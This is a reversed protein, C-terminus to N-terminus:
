QRPCGAGACSSAVASNTGQAVAVAKNQGKANAVANPVGRVVQVDVPPIAPLRAFQPQRKTFKRPCGAGACSNAVASNTGQAVAVAKNQGRANAVANPVGRVVQVDVPPINPLAPTNFRPVGPLQPDRKTLKRPCGAGACSNAVASNTGQAVAVAKNQGRANAVANPVGRVVQVDVPPINPLAPTNFRPFGNLQPERKTLKRPCGAGACSNAVASNTGQAVAVAKNQGRANAVANPVGRVVQVDVPPINTNPFNPFNFQPSRESLQPVETIPAATALPASLAVALLAIQVQSYKM